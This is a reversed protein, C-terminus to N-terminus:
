KVAEVVLERFNFLRGVHRVMRSYAKAGWRDYVFILKRRAGYYEFRLRRVRYLARELLNSITQPNFCYLHHDIDEVRPFTDPREIPLCLVLLGGPTLRERLHRLTLYPEEVHELVHRCLITDFLRDGLEELSSVVNVGDASAVTRGLESPELMWTEARHRVTLLNQGMGGGFEFVRDGPRVHQFYATDAFSSWAERLKKSELFEPHRKRHYEPGVYWSM